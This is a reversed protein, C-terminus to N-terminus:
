GAKRRKERVKKEREMKKEVDVKSAKLLNGMAEDFRSFESAKDKRPQRREYRVM